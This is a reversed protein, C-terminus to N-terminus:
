NLLENYKDKLIESSFNVRGILAAIIKERLLDTSCFEHIKKALLNVDTRYYPISVRAKLDGKKYAPILWDSSLLSDNPSIDPMIVPLGSMLAENVVLSLGGYRRPLILADYDKYLEKEEKVSGIKFTVREDDTYFMDPLKHQSTIVLEFDNFTYPLAELLDLTGNRDKSALTGVVHLFRKKGKRKLNHIMNEYFSFSDIPPPLYKVKGPYRKKMDELYWFSPMLFMTPVPLHPASLNECFEYNTQCFTRIGRENCVKILYFNYPNEVMFIHTLGEVFKLIHHNQPFGFSVIKEYGDYWEPHQTKNKSFPTSDVVLLRSPKLFDVLRKTQVGIGSDSMFCLIGLRM